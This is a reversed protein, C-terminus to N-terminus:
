AHFSILDNSVKDDFVIWNEYWTSFSFFTKNYKSSSVCGCDLTLDRQALRDIREYEATHPSISDGNGFKDCSLFKFAAIKFRVSFWRFFATQLTTSTVDNKRYEM